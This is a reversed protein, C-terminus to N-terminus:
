LEFFVLTRGDAKGQRVEEMTIPPLSKFYETLSSRGEGKIGVIKNDIVVPTPEKITKSQNSMFDKFQQSSFVNEINIGQPLVTLQRKNM